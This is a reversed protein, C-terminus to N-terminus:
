AAETSRLTAECVQRLHKLFIAWASRIYTGSHDQTFRDLVVAGVAMGMGFYLPARFASWAWWSSRGRLEWRKPTTDTMTLCVGVFKRRLFKKWWGYRRIPDVYLPDEPVARFLAAEYASLAAADLQPYSEQLLVLLGQCESPSLSIARHLVELLLSEPRPPQQLPAGVAWGPSCASASFSQQDAAQSEEHDTAVCFRRNKSPGNTLPSSGSEAACSSVVAASKQSRSTSSFQARSDRAVVPM